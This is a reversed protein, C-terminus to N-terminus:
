PAGFKTVFLDRGGANTNGNLNGRTDGVIYVNGDADAAIDAGIETTTTGMQRSWQKNGLPGFKILFADSGAAPGGTKSHGDMGGSTTGVVLVNGDVDIAPAAGYDNSSSGLQRTWQLVGASNYKVLFMDAGGTNPSETDVAGDTSGAVYVNGDRDAVVSRGVDDMSSSLTRTWQRDGSSNYKTVYMDRGGENINGHLNGFTDGAIYVNGDSDASAGYCFEFQDTGFMRSWQKVGASNYKVIFIDTPAGSGSTPIHGDFTGQTFGAVYANGDKDAGVGAVDDDSGGGLQQTWQKAGASDYKTLFMDLGGANSNGDLGGKTAGAVYVNGGGGVAIGKASDDQGSGLQRAWVKAGSSDLKVVLMDQGGANAQGEVISGSTTGAVYVSGSADTAVGVGFDDLVSGLQHTWQQTGLGAVIRQMAANAAELTATRNLLDANEARLARAEAVLDNGNVLVTGNVPSTILVSGNDHTYIMGADTAPEVSQAGVACAAVLLLLAAAVGGCARLYPPVM